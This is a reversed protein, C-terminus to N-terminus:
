KRNKIFIIIRSSICALTFGVIIWPIFPVILHEPTFLTFAIGIMLLAGYHRGLPDYINKLRKSTFIFQGFMCGELILLWIPFIGILVLGLTTFFVLVFDSCVDLYAGCKSETGLKRALAGDLLDTLAALVFIFFSITLLNIWLFWLVFGTLIIRMGSLLDPLSKLLGPRNNENQKTFQAINIM